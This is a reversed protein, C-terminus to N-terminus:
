EVRRRLRELLVACAIVVGVFTGQWYPDVGALLLANRVVEILASGIVAGYATGSGGMLDTGGIVTAAIVRLEYGIGLANTVAGLWGIMLVAAIGAMLSSLMYVSIKIGDVPLGTMRAAQENGGVAYVHQGWASYKLMLALAVGIVIMAIAVSPIGLWSGGGIAFFLKQDPGFQYIMKNNSLILAQSRAISLMGLTVIFPSLKLWAVAIGNIFGCLLAVALAAAVGAWLSYGAQLVLGLIIGSLGMVSGVSLDVGGVVIVLMQGLAMIAVFGFNRVDNFVNDYTRFAPSIVCMLISILAVALTIWAPQDAKRLIRRGRTDALQPVQADM